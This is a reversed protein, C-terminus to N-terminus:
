AFWLPKQSASRRPRALLVTCPRPGSPRLSSSLLRLYASRPKRKASAHASRRAREDLRRLPAPLAPARQCATQTCQGGGQSQPGSRRHLSDRPCVIISFVIDPMRRHRQPHRGDSAFFRRADGNVGTGVGLSWSPFTAATHSSSRSSASPAGLSVHASPGAPEPHEFAFSPPPEAAWGVATGRRVWPHPARLPLVLRSEKLSSGRRSQLSSTPWAQSSSCRQERRCRPRSWAGACSRTAMCDRPLARGRAEDVGTRRVEM